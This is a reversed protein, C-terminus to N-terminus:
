CSVSTFFTNIRFYSLLKVILFPCNNIFKIQKSKLMRDMKQDQYCSLTDAARQKLGM